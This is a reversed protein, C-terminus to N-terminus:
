ACPRVGGEVGSQLAWQSHGTSSSVYTLGEDIMGYLTVSSQAFAPIAFANSLALALLSKRIM